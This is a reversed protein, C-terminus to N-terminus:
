HSKATNTKLLCLGRKGLGSDQHYFNERSIIAIAMVQRQPSELSWFAVDSLVQQEGLRETGALSESCSRLHPIRWTLTLLFHYPGQFPSCVM